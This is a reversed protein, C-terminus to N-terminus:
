NTSGLLRREETFTLTLPDEGNMSPHRQPHHLANSFTTRSPADNCPDVRCYSPVKVGCRSCHRQSVVRPTHARCGSWGPHKRQQVALRSSSQSLPGKGHGLASCSKLRQPGWGVWGSPVQPSVVRRAAWPVSAGWWPAPLNDTWGQLWADWQLSTM